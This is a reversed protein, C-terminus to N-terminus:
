WTESEIDAWGDPLSPDVAEARYGEEMAAVLERRRLEELRQDVAERVFESLSRATALRRIELVAQDPIIVTTRM